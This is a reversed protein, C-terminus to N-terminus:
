AGGGVWINRAILVVLVIRMPIFLIADLWSPISGFTWFFMKFISVIVDWASVDDPEIGDTVDNINNEPASGGFEDNIFPTMFGILVFVLVIGGLITMDNVM